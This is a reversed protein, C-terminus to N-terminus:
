GMLQSEKHDKVEELFLRKAVDPVNPGCSSDNLRVKESIILNCLLLILNRMRWLSAPFYSYLYVNLWVTLNRGPINITKLIYLM